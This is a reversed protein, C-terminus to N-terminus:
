KQQFPLRRLLTQIDVLKAVIAVVATIMCATIILMWVAVPWNSFVIFFVSLLGTTFIYILLSRLHLRVGTKQKTYLMAMLGYFSQSFLAAICCGKAGM